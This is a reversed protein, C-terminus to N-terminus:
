SRRRQLAFPVKEDDTQQLIFRSVVPTDLTGTIASLCIQQVFNCEALDTAGFACEMLKQGTVARMLAENRISEQTYIWRVWVQHSKHNVRHVVARTRVEREEMRGEGVHVPTSTTCMVYDGRQVTKTKKENKPKKAARVVDTDTDIDVM